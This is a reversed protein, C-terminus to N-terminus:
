IFTLSKKEKKQNLDELFSVRVDAYNIDIDDKIGELLKYPM